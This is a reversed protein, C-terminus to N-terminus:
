WSRRRFRNYFSDTNLAKALHEDDCVCARYGISNRDPKNVYDIKIDYYDNIIYGAAAILMTSLSLLFLNFDFIKDFWNDPYAVLFIVSIYQTFGIILLNPFRTLKLFGIFSFQKKISNSYAM